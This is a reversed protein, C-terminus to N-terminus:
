GQGDHEDNNPSLQALAAIPPLIIWSILGVYGGLTPALLFAGAAMFVAAMLLGPHAKRIALMLSLAIGLALTLAGVEVRREPMPTSLLLVIVVSGPVSAAHGAVSSFFSRWWGVGLVKAPLAGGIGFAILYLLLLMLLRTWIGIGEYPSTPGMFSGQRLEIPGLLNSSVYLTVAGAAGAGSALAARMLDAKDM